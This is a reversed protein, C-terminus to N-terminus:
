RTILEFEVRRNKKRFRENINPLYPQSYGRGTTVLRGSSVGKGRLYNKVAVARDKSIGENQRESGINCTHGVIRLRIDPHKNLIAAVTDLVKESKSLLKHSNFRFFIKQDIVDIEQQNLGHMGTGPVAIVGATTSPEDSPDVGMGELEERKESDKSAIAAASAAAAAAAAAKAADEEEQQKRKLESDSDALASVSDEPLSDQFSTSDISALQVLSDPEEEEPLEPEKHGFKIKLTIEHSNSPIEPVVSLDYSYGLWAKNKWHYGAMFNVSSNTRYSMGLELADKILANALFDIQAPGGSVDKALFSGKIKLDDNIPFIKGAALYWHNRRNFETGDPANVTTSVVKPSSIGGFFNKYAFYVGIGAGPTMFQVDSDFNPDNSVELQTYDESYFELGASIGISLQLKSYDWQDTYDASDKFIKYSYNVSLGTTSSVGFNDSLITAGLGHRENKLRTAGSVFVTTPTGEVSAWQRRYTFMLAKDKEFGAYAPNYIMPNFNFQTLQPTQQGIAMTCFLM